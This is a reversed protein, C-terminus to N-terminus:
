AQAQRRAMLADNIDSGFLSTNIIVERGAADWRAACTDLEREAGPEALITLCEIGPLVPFAAIAGKSGLCWTPRLAEWQRGTLGTEIGEAIFLGHTVEEDADLKIACGGVPGLFKRNLKRGNPDLFTRSIARPEDTEISRFLALMAGIGPHWRLVAGAIDDDLEIGRNNLYREVLTGQPDVGANWTSIAYANDAAPPKPPVPAQSRTMRPRQEGGIFSRAEHYGLGTVHRVLAIADGGVSCGRCNWVQKRTNVGFRDRGGCVPCPGVRENPGSRKLQAGLREAILTIDHEVQTGWCRLVFPGGNSPARM